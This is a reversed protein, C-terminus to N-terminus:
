KGMRPRASLLLIRWENWWLQCDPHPYIRGSESEVVRNCRQVGTSRTYQARHRYPWRYDHDYQSLVDVWGGARCEDQVGQGSAIGTTKPRPPTSQLKQRQDCRIGEY